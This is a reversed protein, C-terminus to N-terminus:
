LISWFQLVHETVVTIILKEICEWMGKPLTYYAKEKNSFNDLTSFDVADGKCASGRQCERYFTCISKKCILHCASYNNHLQPVNYLIVCLNSLKNYCSLGNCDLFM